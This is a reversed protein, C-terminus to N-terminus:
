GSCWLPFELTQTSKYQATISVCCLPIGKHSLLNTNDSSHSQNSWQGLLKPHLTWSFFVFFGWPITCCNEQWKRTWRLCAKYPLSSSDNVGMKEKRQYLNSVGLPWHDVLLYTFGQIQARLVISSFPWLELIQLVSISMVLSRVWWSLLWGM